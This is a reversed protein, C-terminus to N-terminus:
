EPRPEARLCGDLFEALRRAIAPALAEALVSGGSDTDTPREHRLLFDALAEPPPAQAGPGYPLALGGPCRTVTALVHSEAPLVAVFPRRACLVPYLKSPTYAADRSGLMLVGHADRLLRLSVFYPVRATQETVIAGLGFREAVPRVSEVALHAPAYSTGIFHLRLRERLRPVKALASFLAELPPVQSDGVRGVFVWHIHGDAPDFTQHAGAETAAIDYDEARVGFPLVTLREPELAPYRRRLDEVYAPSVCVIGAAGLVAPPENRLAARRALAYKLRGGPPPLAGPGSYASNVWPDQFDLAYPVGFQRRWQQALTMFSFQTTSFFVLDFRAERLWRAGERAFARRSRLWLSGFGLRRTWGPPIVRVRRVEVHPPITLLLGPDQPAEVDRPDVALVSPEWGCERLRDMVIRVRQHDPANTPPFHPSVILVRRYM